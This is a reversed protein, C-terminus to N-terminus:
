KKKRGFLRSFFGTAPEEPAPSKAKDSAASKPTPSASAKPATADAPPIRDTTGKAQRAMASKNLQEIIEPKLKWVPEWEEMQPQWLLTDTCVVGRSALAGLEQESVPGTAHGEASYYWKAM